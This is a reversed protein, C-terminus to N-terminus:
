LYGLEKLREMEPTGGKPVQELSRLRLRLLAVGRLWRAEAPLRAAADERRGPDKRLDHLR